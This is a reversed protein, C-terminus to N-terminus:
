PSTACPWWSPPNATLDWTPSACLPDNNCGRLIYHQTSRCPDQAASAIVLQQGTSSRPPDGPLHPFSACAWTRFIALPVPPDAPAVRYYTAGGADNSTCALQSLGAPDQLPIVITDDMTATACASPDTETPLVGTVLSALAAATSFGSASLISFQKPPDACGVRPYFAVNRLQDFNGELFSVRRDPLTMSVFSAGFVVDASGSADDPMDGGGRRQRQPHRLDLVGNGNRDDYVIVSAYAIRGTVDGVMLDASPLTYLSLTAPVGPTIPTDAAVRDPVFGFNDRCGAAIVAAAEPSEPPLLCFPEPLWQLGWVLAAHLQTPVGATIPGADIIDVFDGADIALGSDVDIGAGADVIPLTAIDGTVLVHIQTLPTAATDLGVPKGCAILAVCALIPGSNRMAAM